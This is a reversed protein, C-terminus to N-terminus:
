WDPASPNSRPEPSPSGPKLNKWCSITIHLSGILLPMGNDRPPLTEGHIRRRIRNPRTHPNAHWLSYVNINCSLLLHDTGPRRDCTAAVRTDLLRRGAVQSRM